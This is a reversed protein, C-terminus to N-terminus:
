GGFGGGGTPCPDEDLWIVYPTAPSLPTELAYTLDIDKTQAGTDNNNKVELEGPTSGVANYQHTSCVYVTKPPKQFNSISIKPTNTSTPIFCTFEGSTTIYNCIANTATLIINAARLGGVDSIITGRITRGSPPGSDAGIIVEIDGPPWTGIPTPLM